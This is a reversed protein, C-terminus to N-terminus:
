AGAASADQKRPCAAVTCGTSGWTGSTPTSAPWSPSTSGRAAGSSTSSRPMGFLHRGSSGSRSSGFWHREFEPNHPDVYQGDLAGASRPPHPSSLAEFSGTSRFKILSEGWGDEWRGKGEPGATTLNGTDIRELVHVLQLEQGVKSLARYAFNNQHVRARCEPPLSGAPTGFLREFDAVRLSPAEGPTEQAAPDQTTVHRSRM